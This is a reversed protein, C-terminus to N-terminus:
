WVLFIGKRTQKSVLDAMEALQPEPLHLLLKHLDQLSESNKLQGYGVVPSIALVPRVDTDGRDGDRKYYPKLLNVHCLCSAKRSEPTAILYNLDSLKETVVFPGSYKAQFPM